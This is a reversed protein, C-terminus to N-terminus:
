RVIINIECEMDIRMQIKLISPGHEASVCTFVLSVSLYEIPELETLKWLDTYKEAVAIAKESLEVGFRKIIKERHKEDM